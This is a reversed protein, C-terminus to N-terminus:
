KPWIQKSDKTMSTMKVKKCEFAISVAFHDVQTRFHQFDAAKGGFKNELSYVGNKNGNKIIGHKKM